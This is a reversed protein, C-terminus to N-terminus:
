GSVRGQAYRSQSYKRQFNVNPSFWYDNNGAINKRYTDTISSAKRAQETAAQKREYQRSWEANDGRNYTNRMRADASRQISKQLSSIRSIQANIDALSKKRAM